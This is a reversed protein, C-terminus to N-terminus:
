KKWSTLELWYDTDFKWQEFIKGLIIKKRSKKCCKSSVFISLGENTSTAASSNFLTMLFIESLLLLMKKKSNDTLDWMIPLFISFYHSLFFQILELLAIFNCWKQVFIFCLGPLHSKSKPLYTNGPRQKASTTCFCHLKM